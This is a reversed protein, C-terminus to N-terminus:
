FIQYPLLLLYYIDSYFKSSTYWFECDETGRCQGEYKKIFLSKKLSFSVQM